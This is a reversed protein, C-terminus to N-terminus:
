GRGRKLVVKKAKAFAKPLELTVDLRTGEKTIRDKPIGTFDSARLQISALEADNEDLFVFTFPQERDINRVFDATRFGDKTELTWRVKDTDHDTRVVRFLRDFPKLEWTASAPLGDEARALPALLLVTLLSRKM